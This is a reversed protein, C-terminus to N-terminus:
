ITLAHKQGLVEYVDDRRSAGPDREQRGYLVRTSRPGSHLM